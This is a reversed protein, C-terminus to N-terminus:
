ANMTALNSSHVSISVPRNNVPVDASTVATEKTVVATTEKNNAKILKNVNFPTPM